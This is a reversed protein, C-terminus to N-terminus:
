GFRRRELALEKLRVRVSTDEARRSAYRFTKPDPGGTRLREPLIDLRKVTVPLPQHIM